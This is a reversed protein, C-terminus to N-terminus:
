KLDIKKIKELYKSVTNDIQKSDYEIKIGGIISPDVHPIVIVLKNLQSEIRTRIMDVQENTPHQAMTVTVIMIDKKEQYIGQFEEIIASFLSIENNDALIKLLNIIESHVGVQNLEDLLDKKQQKSIIPISLVKNIETDHIELLSKADYLIEDIKNEEECVQYLVRAYDIAHSNNKM